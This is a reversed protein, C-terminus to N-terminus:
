SPESGNSKPDPTKGDKGPQQKSLGSLEIVKDILPGSTDADTENRWALAEEESVGVGKVLLFVEARTVRDELEGETFGTTFHLAEARSLGRVEIVQGEITVTGTPLAKRPLLDTM